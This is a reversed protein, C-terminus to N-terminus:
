GGLHLRIGVTFQAAPFNIEGEAEGRAKGKLKTSGGELYLAFSRKLWLEIGAGFTLGWGGTEFKFTQKGGPVTTEVEDIVVTTDIVTQDTSFTGRHYAMGGKGYLRVPGWPIGAKAAISFVRTDLSTKFDYSYTEGGGAVSATRPKAYALEVGLYRVFWIDLGAAFATSLDDTACAALDGCGAISFESGVKNLGVGGFLMLGAPLPRRAQVPRDAELEPRLWEFPAPGQRLWVMPIAEALSAVLTTVPRMVFVGPMERRVCADPLAPAALGQEVLLLRQTGKCSDVFIHVDLETRGPRVPLTTKITAEGRADAVASAVPAGNLVLEISTGPAAGVATVTQAAAVGAGVALNLAAVLALLRGFGKM